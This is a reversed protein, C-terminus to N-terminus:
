LKKNFKMMLYKLKKSIKAIANQIPASNRQLFDCCLAVAFFVAFTAFIYFCYLTAMNLFRSIEELRLIEASVMLFFLLVLIEAIKAFIKGAAAKPWIKVVPRNWGLRGIASDLRMRGLFDATKNGIAWSFYRGFIGIVAASSLDFISGSIRNILEDIM